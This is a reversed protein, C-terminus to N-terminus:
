IAPQVPGNERGFLVSGVRSAGSRTFGSRGIALLRSAFGPGPDRMERISRYRHADARYRELRQDVQARQQEYPIM